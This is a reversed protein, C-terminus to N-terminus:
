ASPPSVPGCGKFNDHLGDGNDGSAWGRGWVHCDMHSIKWHCKCGAGIPNNFNWREFIPEIHDFIPEIHYAFDGIYRTGGAKVNDPNDDTKLSCNDVLKTLEELCEDYYPTYGGGPFDVGIRVEDATGEKDPNKFYTRWIGGSNDDKARRNADKCFREVGSLM